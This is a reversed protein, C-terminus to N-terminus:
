CPPSSRHICYWWLSWWWRSCLSCSNKTTAEERPIAAPPDLLDPISSWTPHRPSSGPTLWWWWQWWQRCVAQWCRSWWWLARGNSFYIWAGASHCSQIGNLQPRVKAPTCTMLWFQDLLVNADTAAGLIRVPIAADEMTFNVNMRIQLHFRSILLMQTSEHTPLAKMQTDRVILFVVSLVWKWLCIRRNTWIRRRMQLLFSWCYERMHPWMWWEGGWMWWDRFNLALIRLLQLCYNPPWIWSLTNHFM